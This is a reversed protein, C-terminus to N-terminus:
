GHLPVRGVEREMKQRLQLLYDTLERANKVKGSSCGGTSCGGGSGCDSCSGKESGCNPKGCGNSEPEPPTRPDLFSVTLDHCASLQECLPAPDCEAFPLIHLIAHDRSLLVEVDLIALPLGLTDAKSQADRILEFAKRNNALEIAEDEDSLRRLIDGSPVGVLHAFRPPANGLVVAAEMGRRSQVVVRDGRVFVADAFGVFRGLYATRGYNVLYECAAPLM